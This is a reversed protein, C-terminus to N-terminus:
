YGCLLKRLLGPEKDDDDIVTGGKPCGVFQLSQASAEWVVDDEQFLFITPGSRRPIGADFLREPELCAKDSEEIGIIFPCRNM